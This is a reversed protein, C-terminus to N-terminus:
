SAATPACNAVTRGNPLYQMKNNPVRNDLNTLSQPMAHVHPWAPIGDGAHMMGPDNPMMMRAGPAMMMPPGMGPPMCNPQMMRPMMQGPVGPMGMMSSTPPMGMSRAAMAHMMAASPHQPMTPSMPAGNMPHMAMQPPFPGRFPMPQGNPGMPMPYGHPPMCGAQRMSEMLKQSAYPPMGPPFHPGPHMLRVQSPMRAMAGYPVMQPQQQPQETLTKTMSEIYDIKRQKELNSEREKNADPPRSTKASSPEKLALDTMREIKKLPNDEDANGHNVSHNPQAPGSPPPFADPVSGNPATSDPKSPMTQDYNAINQMSDPRAVHPSPTPGPSPNVAQASAKRKRSRPANKPTSSPPPYQANAQYAGNPVDVAAHNMFAMDGVLPSNLHGPSGNFWETEAKNPMGPPFPFGQPQQSGNANTPYIQNFPNPPVAGNKLPTMVPSAGSYPSLHSQHMGGNTPDVSSTVSPSSISMPVAGSRSGSRENTGNLQQGKLEQPGGQQHFGNPYVSGEMGQACHMQPSGMFMQPGNTLAQPAASNIPGNTPTSPAGNPPYASSTSPMDPPVGNMGHPWFQQQHQPYPYPPPQCIMNAPSMGAASLSQMQRHGGNSDMQGNMGNMMPFNPSQMSGSFPRGGNYQNMHNPASM